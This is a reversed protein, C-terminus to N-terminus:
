RSSVTLGKKQSLEDIGLSRIPLGPEVAQAQESEVFDYYWDELTKEAVRFFKAANAIDSVRILDACRHLFRDTAHTGAALSCFDPTFFHECKQCCFQPVRVRLEVAQEGIPLDHIRERDRTQNVHRCLEHCHPCTAIGVRPVVTMRRVKREEDFAYHVVEFEELGLVGDWFGPDTSEQPKRM